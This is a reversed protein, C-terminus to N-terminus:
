LFDWTACSGLPVVGLIFTHVEQSTKSICVKPKHGKETPDKLAEDREPEPGSEEKDEGEENKMSSDEDADAKEGEGQEQSNPEQCKEERPHDTQNEEMEQAGEDEEEGDKQTDEDLAPVENIDFPNEETSTCSNFSDHGQKLM